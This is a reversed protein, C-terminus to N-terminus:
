TGDEGHNFMHLAHQMAGGMRLRSVPRTSSAYAYTEDDAGIAAVFFGVIKNDKLDRELQAIVEAAENLSPQQNFKIVKM